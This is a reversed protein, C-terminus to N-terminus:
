TRGSIAIAAMHIHLHADGFRRASLVLDAGLESRKDSGCM